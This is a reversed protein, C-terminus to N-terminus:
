VLRSNLPWRRIVMRKLEKRMYALYEWARVITDLLKAKIRMRLNEDRHGTATLFSIGELCRDKHCRCAVSGLSNGRVSLDYSSLNYKM